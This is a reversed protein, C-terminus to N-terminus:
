LKLPHGQKSWCKIHCWEKVYFPIPMNSVMIQAQRLKKIGYTWGRILGTWYCYYIQGLKGGPVGVSLSGFHLWVWADTILMPGHISYPLKLHLTLMSRSFLNFLYLNRLLVDWKKPVSLRVYPVVFQLKLTYIFFLVKGIYTTFIKMLDM